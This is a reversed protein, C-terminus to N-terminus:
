AGVGELWPMEFRSRTSYAEEIVGISDVVDSGAVAPGSGGAGAALFREILPGSLDQYDDIRARATIRKDRGGETLTVSNWDYISWSIRGREGELVATNEQKTLWSLRVDATASGLKLRLHAVAEPGGFSDDHFDIVDPRGGM